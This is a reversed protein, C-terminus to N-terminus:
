ESIGRPRRRRSYLDFTVPEQGRVRVAYVGQARKELEIERELMAPPLASYLEKRVYARGSARDVYRGTVTLLL